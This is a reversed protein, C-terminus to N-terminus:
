RPEPRRPGQKAQVDYFRWPKANLCVVVSEASWTQSDPVIAGAEIGELLLMSAEATHLEGCVASKKLESEAGTWSWNRAHM